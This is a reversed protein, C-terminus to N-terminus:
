RGSGTRLNDCPDHGNSLAHTRNRLAEHIANTRYRDANEPGREHDTMHDNVHYTHGYTAPCCRRRACLRLRAQKYRPRQLKIASWGPVADVFQNWIRITDRHTAVPDKVFSEEVLAGLFRESVRDDVTEPPIGSASCFHM